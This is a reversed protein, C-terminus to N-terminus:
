GGYQSITMNGKLSDNALSLALDMTHTDIWWKVSLGMQLFDWIKEALIGTEQGISEFVEQSSSRGGQIM